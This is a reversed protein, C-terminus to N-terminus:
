LKIVQLAALAKDAALVGGEPDYVGCESPPLTLMPFRSALQEPPLTDFSANLRSLASQVNRTKLSDTPAM